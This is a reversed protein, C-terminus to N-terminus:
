TFAQRYWVTSQRRKTTWVNSSTQWKWTQSKGHIPFLRCLLYINSKNLIYNNLYVGMVISNCDKMRLSTVIMNATTSVSAQTYMHILWRIYLNSNKYVKNLLCLFSTTNNSAIIPFCPLINYCQHICKLSTTYYIPSDNKTNMSIMM